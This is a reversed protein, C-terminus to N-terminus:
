RDFVRVLVLQNDMHHEEIMCVFQINFIKVSSLYVINKRHCINMRACVEGWVINKPPPPFKRLVDYAINEMFWKFSKCQLKERLKKQASVDGYNLSRIAPERRYYYEAYEDMWVEAVRM